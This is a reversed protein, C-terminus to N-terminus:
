HRDGLWRYCTCYHQSIYERLLDELHRKKCKAWPISAQIKPFGASDLEVKLAPVAQRDDLTSAPNLLQKLSKVYLGVNRKMETALDKHRKEFKVAPVGLIAAINDHRQPLTM